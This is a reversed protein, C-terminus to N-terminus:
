IKDLVAVYAVIRDRFTVEQTRSTVSKGDRSLNLIIYGAGLQTETPNEAAIM